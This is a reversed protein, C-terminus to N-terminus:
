LTKEEERFNLPVGYNKALEEFATVTAKDLPIGKELREKATKIEKDGPLFIDKEGSKPEAKVQMSMERMRSMFEISDICGNSRMVMYFQGLNRTENMPAKYMAPIDRGFAMGTYVGCLVEVMSALGYGKYGGIPLLMAAKEPDTTMQGHEDAVINEPLPEGSARHALVKNWSIPSPAMDLCYPDMGERPAAMCIPNTGFYARSSGYSQVLADAHTFAFAIYGERAARLAMSAMSGCHSSNSVAVVGMGFQHALEIGYDIAKMGAALGFANDAELHAITPFNNKFEFNPTPNKRGTRASNVYHPLLRVGHSDVGRLSAECLGRTVSENSFSELGVKDLLSSTFKTLDLYNIRMLLVRVNKSKLRALM